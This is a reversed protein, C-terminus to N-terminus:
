NCGNRRDVGATQVRQRLQLFDQVLSVDLYAVCSIRAAAVEHALSGM